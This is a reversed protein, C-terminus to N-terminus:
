SKGGTSMMILIGVVALGGILLTNNSV